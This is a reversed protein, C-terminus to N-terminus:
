RFAVNAGLENGWSQVLRTPVLHRLDALFDTEGLAANDDADIQHAPTLAFARVVDKIVFGVNWDGQDLGLIVGMGDAVAQLLSQVIGLAQFNGEYKGGIAVAENEM